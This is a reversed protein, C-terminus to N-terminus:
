QRIARDFQGSLHTRRRILCSGHFRRGRQVTKEMIEAASKEYGLQGHEAMHCYACLTVLNTLSDNGQQSRKIKHHV